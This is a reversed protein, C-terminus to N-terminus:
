RRIKCNPLAQQLKEVGEDTVRTDRLDICQVKDLGYLAPLYADSIPTGYLDIAKLRDIDNIARMRDAIAAWRAFSAETKDFKGTRLDFIDASIGCGPLDQRLGLLAEGSIRCGDADLERLQPLAKFHAIASDDILTDSVFLSM